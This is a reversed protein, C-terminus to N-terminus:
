EVGASYDATPSQSIDQEGDEAKIGNDTEVPDLGEVDNPREDHM